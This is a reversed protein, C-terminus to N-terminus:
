TLPSFIAKGKDVNRLDLKGMDYIDMIQVLWQIKKDFDEVSGISVDLNRVYIHINEPDSVSVKVVDQLMDYKLMMQSMIAVVDLANKNKAPIIEGVQFYDFELGEVIPLNKDYTKCSELVRGDKDIYLYTGLYPVYGVLKREDVKIEVTDPWIIRISASEIYVDENLIKEGAKKNFLFINDGKNVGIMAIIEEKSYHDNGYINIHHISFLPSSFLLLFLVVLMGIFLLIKVTKHQHTSQFNGMKVVKGM